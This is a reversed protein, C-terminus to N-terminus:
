EDVSIIGNAAANEALEGADPEAGDDYSAGTAAIEGAVPEAGDTGATVLKVADSGEAASEDSVPTVGTEIEEPTVVGIGLNRKLQEYLQMALSNNEGSVSKESIEQILNDSFMNVMNGAYSGDSSTGFLNVSKDVEKYVQEWLFAEFQKCAGLLEDDTSDKTLSSIASGTQNAANTSKANDILNSAYGTLASVDLDSM